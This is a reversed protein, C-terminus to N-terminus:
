ASDRLRGRATPLPELVVPVVTRRGCHACVRIRIARTRAEVLYRWEHQCPRATTEM